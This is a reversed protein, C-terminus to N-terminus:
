RWDACSASLGEFFVQWRHTILELLQAGSCLECLRPLGFAQWQRGFQRALFELVLGLHDLAAAVGHAAHGLLQIRRGAHERRVAM